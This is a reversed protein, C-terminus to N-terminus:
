EPVPGAVNQAQMLGDPALDRLIEMFPLPALRKARDILLPLPSSPENLVFYASALSLAHLADDRNTIVTISRLTAARAPAAAQAPPADGPEAPDAPPADEAAAAAYRAVEKQMERLLKVTTDLDPGNGYGSQADFVAGIGVLDDLSAAIGDQVAAFKAPDTRAFTDRVEADGPGTYAPDADPTGALIALDRFTVPKMRPLGALPAERLARLVTVPNRLLLLANARPMPDNDDEPDLNPHVTDWGQELSARIMGLGEAFGPIGALHLRAVSLFTFVRLDRTRTLLADALNATLVWDPPTAAEITNGYQAEAKGKAATEMENFQADLGLDPGAPTGDPLDPLIVPM